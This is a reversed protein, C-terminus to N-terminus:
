LSKYEEILRSAHLRSTPVTTCGLSQLYAVQKPTPESSSMASEIRLKQFHEQKERMLHARKEAPIQEWKLVSVAFHYAEESSLCTKLERLVDKHTCKKARLREDIVFAVKNLLRKPDHFAPKKAWQHFLHSVVARDESCFRKLFNSSNCNEPESSKKSTESCANDIAALLLENNEASETRFSVCDQLDEQETPPYIKDTSVSILDGETEVLHHPIERLFRSPQLVQWNSDALVYLVFLKKRARTMAVYLLRREEEISTGNENLFGNHEHLLPIETENAKVIFVTDWELGKSQHITTLTVSNQNDHKRSRFNERERESIYDIFAQLATMCGKEQMVSETGSKQVNHVTILFSSVDDLLYQLVPRLDNDENLLKGGDVDLVARQELLYKQPIMNAVSTIVASISHERCVFKSIIDLTHLVKRGQTLQSRRFTGSIKASFIDSAASIFKCKRVTSVKDIHQIVKKIEEKDFPLLAKFVRRFPGDDCGPLATSLMAIIARVVKKRYFAVGHINFPIKRDRFATQFLKGTVQRRYLVAINGYSCRQDSLGDSAIRFIKDVVFACEAEENSCEKITIKSGSSNDTVVNKSICRKSNNRILFSAAEVICRTSRYNKNLRVEKYMPFDKRFSDFGCVDAGNFSFISQDEDGVITIRKHSALIHLLGYQMASTDQFEDIVIAKWSEQCDALVEPFDTLLKVSCSIFDHYDLANCSKLIDNYNQLITAGTEDGMKCFDEPSRGAAKAQTVFKLWKKSKEKFHKPSNIDSLESFKCLENNTCRKGDELLRVAEIVAKRQQGHGYILFEPTRGLKDAHLRCLQLSFSHFTSITLEKAAAKGAVAGIRERMEAAAATTFTMALVNSPSIGEHLLMLIRGVMTSTKGSGPGAVIVLPVSIDCCAAEQQKDNLSQIYKAYEEPMSKAGPNKSKDLGQIGRVGGDSIKSDEESKFTGDKGDSNTIPSDEECSKVIENGITALPVDGRECNGSSKQECLADIQEFISEDFDDDLSCILISEREDLFDPPQISYSNTVLKTDSSSVNGLCSGPSSCGSQRVPIQLIENKVGNKPLDVNRNSLKCGQLSVPFPLNTCIESLPLRKNGDVSSEKEDGPKHNTLLPGSLTSPELKPRKRALLAKAARYSNSIRARQETSLEGGAPKFAANEKSSM